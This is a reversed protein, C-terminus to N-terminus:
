VTHCPISIIANAGGVKDGGLGGVFETYIVHAAVYIFPAVVPILAIVIANRRAVVRLTRRRARAAHETTATPEAVGQDAMQRAPEVAVRVICAVDEAQAEGESNSFIGM